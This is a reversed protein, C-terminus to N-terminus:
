IPIIQYFDIQIPIKQEVGKIGVETEIHLHLKETRPFPPWFQWLIIDASFSGSLVTTSNANVIKGPISGGGIKEEYLYYVAYLSISIDQVEISFSNQNDIEISINTKVHITPPSTDIIDFNELTNTIKYTPLKVIENIKPMDITATSRVNTEKKIGGVEISVKGKLSTIINEYNLIKWPLTINDSIELTKNSSVYFNGISANYIEFGSENKISLFLNEGSIGYFNPNLIFASYHLVVGDDNIEKIKGHLDISPASIEQIPSLLIDIQSGVNILKKILMKTGVKGNITVTVKEPIKEKFSFRYNGYFNRSSKPPISGTTLPFEALKKGDGIIKAKLEKMILPFVNKNEMNVSVNLLMEDSLINMLRIEVKTDPASISYFVFVTFVLMIVIFLISVISVIKWANKRVKKKIEDWTFMKRM